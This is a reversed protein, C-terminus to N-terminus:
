EMQWHPSLSPYLTFSHLNSLSLSKEILKQEFQGLVFQILVFYDSVIQIVHGIKCLITHISRLHLPYTNTKVSTSSICKTHEFHLLDIQVLVLVFIIVVQIFRVTTHGDTPIIIEDLPRECCVGEVFPPFPFIWRNSRTEHGSVSIRTKGLKPIVTSWTEHGSVFIATKVFWFRNGALVLFQCLRV